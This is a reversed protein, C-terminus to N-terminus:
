LLLHRGVPRCAEGNFTIPLSDISYQGGAGSVAQRTIASIPVASARAKALPLITSGGIVVSVTCGPVPQRLCNLYVPCPTWITGALKATAGAALLAVTVATDTTTYVDIQRSVFGSQNFSLQYSGASEPKFSFRGQANTVASDLLVGAIPAPLVGAPQGALVALPKLLSVRVGQVPMSARKSPFPDDTVTGSITVLGAVAPQAFAQQACAGYVLITTLIALVNKDM